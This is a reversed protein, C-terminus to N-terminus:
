AFFGLSKATPATLVLDPEPEAQAPVLEEVPAEAVPAAPVELGELSPVEVRYYARFSLPVETLVHVSAESVGV